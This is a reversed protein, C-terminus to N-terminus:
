TNRVQIVLSLSHFPVISPSRSDNDNNEKEQDRKGDEGEELNGKKSVIGPSEIGKIVILIIPILKVRMMFRDSDNQLLRPFADRVRSLVLQISMIIM